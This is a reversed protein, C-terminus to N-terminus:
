APGPLVPALRIVEEGDDGWERYCDCSILQWGCSPCRELDCGLHHFGGGGAGCDGCRGARDVSAVPTRAFRRNGILVEEVTCTEAATMERECDECRAM